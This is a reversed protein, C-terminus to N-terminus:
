LRERKTVPPALRERKIERQQRAEVGVFFVGDENHLAAYDAPLGVAAREANLRAVTEEVAAQRRTMSSM